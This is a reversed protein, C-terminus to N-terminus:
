SLLSISIMLRLAFDYECNLFYLASSHLFIREFLGFHKKFLPFVMGAFLTVWGLKVIYETVKLTVFYNQKAGASLDETMKFELIAVVTFRILAFLLHIKGSKTKEKGEVDTPFYLVDVLAGVRVLLIIIAATKPTTPSYERFNFHLYVM